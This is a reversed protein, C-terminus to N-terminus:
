ASLDGIAVWVNTSRKIITASAWQARLKLGPTANITVGGAPTLTTQGTSTQLITIETGVPYAVTDNNPVTLTNATAVGMEVIKDADGLVLTYSAAQANFSNLKDKKSSIPLNTLGSGDGVFASASVQGTVSVSGSVTTNGMTISQYTANTFDVVNDVPHPFNGALKWTNDSNDYILGRHLHDEGINVGEGYATTFGSDLTDTETNNQALYILPDDILLNEANVYTVSGSFTVDSEFEVPGTVTGGAVPLYDSAAASQTLYTASGADIARQSTFYLNDGEAVNTTSLSGIESDTYGNASSVAAGSASAIVTTLASELSDIEGDTYANAAEQSGVSASNILASLEAGLEGFSSDTYLILNTSASSLNSAVTTVFDADDGIAAAIENLTDLLGPAADVLNSVATDIYSQTVGDSVLAWESGDWRYIKNNDTDIWLDTEKPDLPTTPGVIIPRRKNSTLAM